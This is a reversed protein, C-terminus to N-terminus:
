THPTDKSHIKNHCEHCLSILNDLELRKSWDQKLEVIHHVVDAFVIKNEKLCHQCLGKDRSLVLRRTKEWEKSHYFETYKKDRVNRIYKDYYKNRDAKEKEALYKHKDCYRENGEVLEPCGPYNCPKKPRKPM